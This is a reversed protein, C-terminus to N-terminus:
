KVFKKGDKIYIRGDVTHEVRMGQLNYINGDEVNNNDLTVDAIGAADEYTMSGSLLRGGENEKTMISEVISNLYHELNDM